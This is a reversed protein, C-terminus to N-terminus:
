ARWRQIEAEAEVRARAKLEELQSDVRDAEERLETLEQATYLLSEPLPAGCSECNPCRRNFIRFGCAPCVWNSESM